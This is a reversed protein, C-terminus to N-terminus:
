LTSVGAVVVAAAAMRCRCTRALAQLRTYVFYISTNLITNVVQPVRIGRGERDIYMPISIGNREEMIGVMSKTALFSVAEGFISLRTEDTGTRFVCRGVRRRGTRSLNAIERLRWTCGQGRQQM